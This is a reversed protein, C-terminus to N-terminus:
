HVTPVSASRPASGAHTQIWRSLAEVTHEEPRMLHATIATAQLAATTASSLQERRESLMQQHNTRWNTAQIIDAASDQVAAVIDVPSQRELLLVDTQLELADAWVAFCGYAAILTVSAQTDEGSPTPEARMQSYTNLAADRVVSLTGLQDKLTQTPDNSRRAGIAQVTLFYEHLTPDMPALLPQLMQTVSAFLPWTQGDDLRLARIRPALSRVVDQVSSSALDM